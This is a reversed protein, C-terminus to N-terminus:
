GNLQRHLDLLRRAGFGKLKGAYTADADGIPFKAKLIEAELNDRTKFRSQIEEGAKFLKLLQTNSAHKLRKRTEGDPDGILAIIADAAAEKTQWRAQVAERPNQMAM